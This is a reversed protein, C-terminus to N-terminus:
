KRVMGEQNESGGKKDEICLKSNSFRGDQEGEYLQQFEGRTRM